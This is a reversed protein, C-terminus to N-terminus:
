LKQWIKRGVKKPRNQGGVLSWLVAFQWLPVSETRKKEWRGGPWGLSVRAHGQSTLSASDLAWSRRAAICFERPSMEVPEGLPRRPLSRFGESERFGSV